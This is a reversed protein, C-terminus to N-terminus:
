LGAADLRSALLEVQAELTKVRADLHQATAILPIGFQEWNIIAGVETDVVWEGLSTQALYQAITGLRWPADEGFQEVEGIYRYRILAIHLVDEVIETLDTPEFDQKFEVGSPNFGMDGNVDIWMGVYGSSTTVNFARSGPSRMIGTSTVKGSTTVSAAAISGSANINTMNVTGTSLYSNVNSIVLATINALTAQVQALLGALDVGSPRQLIRLQLRLDDLQETLVRIGDGPPVPSFGM